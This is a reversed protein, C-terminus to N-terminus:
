IIHSISSRWRGLHYHQKRISMLHHQLFKNAIWNRLSITSLITTHAMSTSIDCFDELSIHISQAYKRIRTQYEPIVKKLIFDEDNDIRMACDKHILM